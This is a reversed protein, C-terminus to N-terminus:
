DGRKRPICSPSLNIQDPPIVELGLRLFSDTGHFFSFATTPSQDNLKKRILGNINSALFLMDQQVLHDFSSGKPLVMRIYEHGRELAGKQYPSSADCYFLRTRFQGEADYEIAHPNSFESGNDALLVPFLRKFQDRGFVRDLENVVDIVSQATNQDRLYILMLDSVTFIMTLMVKGGKRGEVSDIQVVPTDPNDRLYQEFDQFTRGIRCKKDVKHPKKSRRPRYRVKRVLDMNRCDFVGQDILRYLTRESCTLQNASSVCIHHLSQQKKVAPTVLDNIWKLEDDSFSCGSRSSSLTETYCKFASQANYLYKDLVCAMRQACGNCVYPPNQPLPCQEQVFSPCVRNCKSCYRCYTRRCKSQECLGSLTCTKRHLCANKIRGYASSCAMRRHKRVERAITSPDKSLDHAIQRFSQGANLSAQIHSRDDLTLHQHKPM